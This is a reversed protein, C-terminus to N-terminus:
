ADKGPVCNAGTFDKEPSSGTAKGKEWLPLGSGDMLRTMECSEHILILDVQSLLGSAGDRYESSLDYLQFGRAAFYAVIESVIPCGKWYSYLSTEVIFVRASEWLKMGGAMVELEYGQVDLKVLQPPAIAGTELLRDVTTQSVRLHSSEAHPRRRAFIHGRYLSNEGAPLTLEVEADEKGVAQHIWHQRMGAPIPYLRPYAQPEVLFYDAEPFVSACTASWVGNSAGVDLVVKPVFGHRRLDQLRRPDQAFEPVIEPPPM